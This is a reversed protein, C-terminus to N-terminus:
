QTQTEYRKNVVILYMLSIININHVLIRKKDANTNNKHGTCMLLLKMEALLHADRVHLAIATAKASEKM